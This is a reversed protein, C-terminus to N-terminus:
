VEAGFSSAEDILMVPIGDRVPYGLNCTRCIVTETDETLQLEVKTKCKPCALIELLDASLPMPKEKKLVSDLREFLIKEDQIRSELAVVFCPRVFSAATLKMADKETTLMVDAGKAAANIAAIQRATYNVHDKLALKEQPEIGCGALASFFREPRAIGAFAFIKRGRFDALRATEGTLDTVEAALTTQMRLQPKAAFVPASEPASGSLVVLDARRGATAPERLIGAPLLQGNGFPRAADLLLLNLDRSVQRHQFADDLIVLDALRRTELYELAHRRRACILVLAAPNRRALLCPEDGAQEASMLLGQGLSVLGLKGRFTGGYGRSVVAPRLGKQKAYRVLLDVLPTKGTGGVALNGVAIVPLSSHYVRRWGKRFGLDRLWVLLAYVRALVRLGAFILQEGRGDPGEEVLRQHLRFCRM